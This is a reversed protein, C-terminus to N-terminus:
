ENIVANKWWDPFMLQNRIAFNLFSEDLIYSTAYDTESRISRGTMQILQEITYYNYWNNDYKIREKIWNDTINAFPVKCIICFRSLDEKLDLGEALSPSILVYPRNSTYFTNLIEQRTNGRPMLLRAGESTGYLGNIIIEALEYNVTHIIGKENKHHQLISKIKPILKPITKNKKNWALSGVPTYHILRNKIPFVSDYAFYEADDLCLGLNKCYQEKSLVTASMHLFLNGMPELCTKFLNNGFLIKFELYNNDYNIIIKQKYKLQNLLENIITIIRELIAYKNIIRKYEKSFNFKNYQTIQNKYYLYQMKIKPLIINFLWNFKEQDTSQKDPLKPNLIGLYILMKESLKITSTKILEQECFHCEDVIILKRPELKKTKAINLFYSYNMNTINAALAKTKALLYPCDHCYQSSDRKCVGIECTLNNDKKCLYNNRGLIYPINLEKYYQEQLIKQSTLIYADGFYKAIAYAICSKGTGTPASLIVHKKGTEYANIISEIIERQNNRPKEFPFINKFTIDNM